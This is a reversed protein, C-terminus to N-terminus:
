RGAWGPATRRGARAPARRRRRGRGHQEAVEVAELLDVVLEAVGGAVLQQALHRLAQAVATGSSRRREAPEATVLERDQEDAVGVGLRGRAREDVAELLGEPELAALQPHRGADPHRAGVAVLQAGVGQQAGGVRRHVDGLLAPAVLDAHRRRRRVAGRRAAAARRELLLQAGGDARALQVQQVLRDEGQVARARRRGGLALDHRDLRQHAPVVGPEPGSTM